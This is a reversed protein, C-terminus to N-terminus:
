NLQRLLYILCRRQEAATATNAQLKSIMAKVAQRETKDAAAAAEAATQAREIWQREVRDSFWVLKPDYFKGDNPMAIKVLPVVLQVEPVNLWEGEEDQQLSALQQSPILGITKMNPEM